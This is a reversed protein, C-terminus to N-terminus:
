ASVTGTTFEATSSLFNLFCCFALEFLFFPSFVIPLLFSMNEETDKPIM